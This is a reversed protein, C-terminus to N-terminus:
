TWTLATVRWTTYNFSQEALPDKGSTRSRVIVANGNYGGADNAKQLMWDFFGRLFVGGGFQVIKVPRAPKKHDRIHEM